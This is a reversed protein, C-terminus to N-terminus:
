TRIGQQVIEGIGITPANELIAPRSDFAARAEQDAFLDEFRIRGAAIGHKIQDVGLHHCHEARGPLAAFDLESVEQGLGAEGESAQNWRGRLDENDLRNRCLCLIPGCLREGRPSAYYQRVTM